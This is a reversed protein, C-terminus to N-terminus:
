VDLATLLEGLPVTAFGIAADAIGYPLVLTGDHSLGGCSYVVNPVYGNQEDAAPSLLPQRLQGLIRTPDELDLLIAGISYTRMPGVGHTLVLWGAETEIPPGCNGLQLAEWARVPRQCRVSDTWVFPHDSYAISNSERDSRSVAAFRGRIRRPFLALGKNGAASGVMPTSSFSRFDSTQLLQQSIHSGSYATYTAYFTVSADDDVFRVFRADEMGAAEAGMAPWLVRESLPIGDAFEVAYTREAITRILSITQTAHRRTSRNTQLKDFQEDLDARTFRDGLADLVYDAAEGADRLRTLESRFVAADLLTSMVSGVSTFPAPADLIVGGAADVVGTRFGISSRHGEGIGRVSMVFRLSGAATGAQDPHAVISPNCLAAGEIAYESTFTAGLLLMRAESLQRDPDLRDALERAHRRFTAVLDRHRGDFRTVVDDLSLRVEDEDLALIRKLVAGARSDQQEFGEQGPIFLRAIVRSPDAAIRQPSRTVLGSRLSTM